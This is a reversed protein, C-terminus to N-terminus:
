KILVYELLMNSWWLIESRAEDEPEGINKLMGVDFQLVQFYPEGCALKM